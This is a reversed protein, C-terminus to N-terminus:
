SVYYIYLYYSYYNGLYCELVYGRSSADLIMMMDLDKMEDDTLWKFNSMLLPQSTAWGYLNNVDLHM